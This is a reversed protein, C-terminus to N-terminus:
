PLLYAPKLPFDGDYFSADIFSWLRGRGSKNASLEIRLDLSKLCMLIGRRAGGGRRTM